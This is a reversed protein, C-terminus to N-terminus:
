APEWCLYNKIRDAQEPEGAAFFVGMGRPYFSNKSGDNNWVVLAEAIEVDQGDPLRFRLKKVTTFPPLIVESRVYAGEPNLNHIEGELIQEGVEFTAEVLVAYRPLNRRDIGLLECPDPNSNGVITFKRKVAKGGREL